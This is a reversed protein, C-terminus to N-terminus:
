EAKPEDNGAARARMRALPNRPGDDATPAPAVDDKPSEGSLRFASGGDAFLLHAHFLELLRERPLESGFFAEDLRVNAERLGVIVPEQGPAARRTLLATRVPPKELNTMQLESFLKTLNSLPREVSKPRVGDPEAAAWRAHAFVAAEGDFAVRIQDIPRVADELRATVLASLTGAALASLVEQESTSLFLDVGFAELYPAFPEGGTFAIRTVQLAQERVSAFLRPSTDGSAPSVVVLEFRRSVHESLRLLAKAVPLARGPRLADGEREIQHRRFGEANGSRSMEDDAEFDFLAHSSVAVVYRKSLPDQMGIAEPLTPPGRPGLPRAGTGM